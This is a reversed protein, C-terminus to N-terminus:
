EPLEDDSYKCLEVTILLSWVSINIEVSGEEERKTQDSYGKPNYGGNGTTGWGCICYHYGGGEIYKSGKIFGKTFVVRKQLKVHSAAVM